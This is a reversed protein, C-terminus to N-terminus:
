GRGFLGIIRGFLSCERLAELAEEYHRDLHVAKKLSRKALGRNGSALQARGLWYWTCARDPTTQSVEHLWKAAEPYWGSLYWIMGIRTETMWNREAALAREFCSRAEMSARPTRKGLIIEGKRLWAYSSGPTAETAIAGFEMAMNYNFDASEFERLKRRQRYRQLYAHARATGLDTDRNYRELLEQATKEGRDLEGKRLLCDVACAHAKFFMPSLRTAEQFAALAKDFSGALYLQQGKDFASQGPDPRGGPSVNGRHDAM